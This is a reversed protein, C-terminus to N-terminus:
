PISVHFETHYIMERMMRYPINMGYDKHYSYGGQRESGTEDTVTAEFLVFDVNNDEVTNILRELTNKEIWDDSDLFFLYEGTAKDLAYNRASSAGGNEKHFSKFRDDRESYELCIDYSSDTSGDDVMIVEFYNYTQNLVSDLCQRLYKEVNYVPIVVSILTDLVTTKDSM